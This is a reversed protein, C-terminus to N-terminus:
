NLLLEVLRKLTKILSVNIYLYGTYDLIEFESIKIWELSYKVFFKWSPISLLAVIKWNKEDLIKLSINGKSIEKVQVNFLTLQQM